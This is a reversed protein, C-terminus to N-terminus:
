GARKWGLRVPNLGPRTVGPNECLPIMGFLSAPRRTKESIEPKGRGKMRAAVGNESGPSHQFSRICILLSADTSLSILRTSCTYHTNDMSLRPTTDTPLCHSPLGGHLLVLRSSDAGPLLKERAAWRAIPRTGYITVKTTTTAKGLDQELITRQYHYTAKGLDQEMYIVKTTTPLKGPRTGYITVQYHLYGPNNWIYDSQYHYTAKGPTTGYYDKPLPTAKGTKNCICDSQYHYTAKGPRTGYITVQYHYYGVWTKNRRTWIYDSQYHYTAKGTKNWIYDSTATFRGTNNWIYDSQYTPLRVWTQEMNTVKTTTLLGTKNWIYDSQYHYSAKGPRTGYVTVKTTTTGLDQELLDSQYRYTAKGLDQEYITVKTTTTAKGLDQEM